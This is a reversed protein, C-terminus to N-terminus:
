QSLPELHSPHQTGPFGDSILSYWWFPVQPISCPIPPYRKARQNQSATSKSNPSFSLYLLILDLIQVSVVQENKKYLRAVYGLNTKLEYNEQMLRRNISNCTYVKM